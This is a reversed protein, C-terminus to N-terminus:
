PLHAPTAVRPGEFLSLSPQTANVPLPCGNAAVRVYCDRVEGGSVDGEEEEEDDSAGLWRTLKYYGFVEPLVHVLHPVRPRQLCYDNFFTEKTMPAFPHQARYEILAQQSREKEVLIM